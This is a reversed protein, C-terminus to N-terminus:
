YGTLFRVIVVIDGAFARERNAGRRPASTRRVARAAVNEPQAESAPTLRRLTLGGVGSGRTPRAGPNKSAPSAIQFMRMSDVVGGSSGNTPLM